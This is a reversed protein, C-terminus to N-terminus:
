PENLRLKLKGVGHVVLRDLGVVLVADQRDLQRLAGFCLRLLHLDVDRVAVVLLRVLSFVPAPNAAGKRRQTVSSLSFISGHQSKVFKGYLGLLRQLCRLFHPRAGALLLDLRQM